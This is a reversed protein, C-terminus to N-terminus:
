GHRGCPIIDAFGQVNRRENATELGSRSVPLFEPRTAAAMTSRRCPGARSRSRRSRRLLRRRSKETRQSGPESEPLKLAADQVLRGVCQPSTAKARAARTTGVRFDVGESCKQFLSHTVAVHNMVIRRVGETNFVHVLKFIVHNTYCCFVTEISPNVGFATSSFTATAADRKM